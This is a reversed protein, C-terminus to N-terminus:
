SYSDLIFGFDWKKWNEDRLFDSDGTMLPFLSATFFLHILQRESALRPRHHPLSPGPSLRQLALTSRLESGSMHFIPSIITGVEYPQQSSSPPRQLASLLSGPTRGASRCGWSEHHWRLGKLPGTAQFFPRPCTSKIHKDEQLKDGLLPIVAWLMKNCLWPSKMLFHTLTQVLIHLRGWHKRKIQLLAKSM